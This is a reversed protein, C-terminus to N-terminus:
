VLGGAQAIIAALLLMGTVAMVSIPLSGLEFKSRYFGGNIIFAVILFLGVCAIVKSNLSVAGIRQMTQRTMMAGVAFFCFLFIAKNLDKWDIFEAITLEPMGENKLIAPTCGSAHHRLHQEVSAVTYLLIISPCFRLKM